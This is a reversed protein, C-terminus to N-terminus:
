RSFNLEGERDKPGTRCRLGTKSLTGVGSIRMGGGEPMGARKEKPVLLSTASNKAPGKSIGSDFVRGGGPPVRSGFVKKRSGGGEGRALFRAIEGKRQGERRKKGLKVQDSVGGKHTARMLLWIEPPDRLENRVLNGSSRLQLKRQM